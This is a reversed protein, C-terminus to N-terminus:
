VERNGDPYIDELAEGKEIMSNLLTGFLEVILDNRHLSSYKKYIEPSLTITRVEGTEVFHEIYSGNYDTHGQRLNFEYWWLKGYINVTSVEYDLGVIKKYFPQPSLIYCEEYPEDYTVVLKITVAGVTNDYKYRSEIGNIDEKLRLIEANEYGGYTDLFSTNLGDKFKYHYKELGNYFAVNNMYIVLGDITKSRIYENMDEIYDASTMIFETYGDIVIENQLNGLCVGRDNYVYHNLAPLKWLTDDSWSNLDGEKYLKTDSLEVSSWVPNDSIDIENLGDAIALSKFLGLNQVEISFNSNNIIVGEVSELSSSHMSSLHKVEVIVNKEKVYAGLNILKFITHKNGDSDLYTEKVNMVLLSKNNYDEVAHKIGSLIRLKYLAKDCYGVKQNGKFVHKGNSPITVSKKLLGLYDKKEYIDYKNEDYRYVSM